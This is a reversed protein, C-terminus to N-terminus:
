RYFLWKPHFDSVSMYSIIIPKLDFRITRNADKVCPRRSKINLETLLIMSLNPPFNYPCKVQLPQRTASPGARSFRYGTLFPITPEFGVREAM